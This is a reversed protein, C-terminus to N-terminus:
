AAVTDAPARQLAAALDVVLVTVAQQRVMRVASPVRVVWDVKALRAQQVLRAAVWAAAKPQTTAMARLDAPSLATAPVEARREAPVQAELQM